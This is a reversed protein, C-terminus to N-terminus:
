RSVIRNEYSIETEHQFTAQSYLDALQKYKATLDKIRSDQEDILATQQSNVSSKDDILPLVKPPDRQKTEFETIKSSYVTMSTQLIKIMEKLLNEANDLYTQNEYHDDISMQKFSQLREAFTSFHNQELVNSFAHRFKFILEYFSFFATEASDKTRFVFFLVM